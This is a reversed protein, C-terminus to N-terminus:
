RSSLCFFPSIFSVYQFHHLHLNLYFYVKYDCSSFRFGYQKTFVLSTTDQLTNFDDLDIGNWSKVSTISRLDESEIFSAFQCGRAPVVKASSHALRRRADSVYHLASEGLLLTGLIESVIVTPSGHRFVDEPVVASSMDNIIHIRDAFGNKKIIGRAVGALHENAEIAVVAKAGLSAAIISLLGSGAGVELVVTDPTIFNKLAHSYFENRSTDNMMAFHWDNAAEILEYPKNKLRQAVIFSEDTNQQFTPKPGHNVPAPPVYPGVPQYADQQIPSPARAPWSRCEKLSSLPETREM